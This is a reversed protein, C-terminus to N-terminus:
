GKDLFHKLYLEAQEETGLAITTMMTVLIIPGPIIDNDGVKKHDWDSNAPLDVNLIWWKEIKSLLSILESFREPLEVPLGDVLLQPLNHAIRNRSIKIEEFKNIDYEDIAGNEKLWLLSAYLQSKNRSLVETNYSPDILDGRDAEWDRWYFNKLRDIISSKLIEFATIYISATIM